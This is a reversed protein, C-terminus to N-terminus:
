FRSLYDWRHREPEAVDERNGRRKKRTRGGRSTRSSIWAATLSARTPLPWWSTEGRNSYGRSVPRRSRPPSSRVTSARTNPSSSTSGTGTWIPCICIDARRYEVGIDPVGGAIEVGDHERLANLFKDDHTGVVRLTASPVHHRIIPLSREVFRRLGSENPPWRGGVFLMRDGDGTTDPSPTIGGPRSAPSSMSTRSASIPRTREGQDRLRQQVPVHLEEPRAHRLRNVPNLGPHVPPTGLDDLDVFSVRGSAPAHRWFPPNSGGSFRM